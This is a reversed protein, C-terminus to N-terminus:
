SQREPVGPNPGVPERPKVGNGDTTFDAILKQSAALLDKYADFITLATRAEDPTLVVYGQGRLWASYFEISTQTSM